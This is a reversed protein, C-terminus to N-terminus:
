KKERNESKLLRVVIFDVVVFFSPCFSTSLANHDRNYSFDNILHIVISAFTVANSM